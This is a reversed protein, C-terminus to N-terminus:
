WRVRIRCGARPASDHRLPLYGALLFGMEVALYNGGSNVWFIAYRNAESFQELHCLDSPSYTLGSDRLRRDIADHAIQTLVSATVQPPPVNATTDSM